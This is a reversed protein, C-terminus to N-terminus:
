RLSCTKEKNKWKDFEIKNSNVAYHAIIKQIAEMDCNNAKNKYFVVDKAKLNYTIKADPTGIYILFILLILIVLLIIDSRKRIM